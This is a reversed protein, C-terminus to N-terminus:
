LAWNLPYRPDQARGAGLVSASRSLGCRGKRLRRALPSVMHSGEDDHKRQHSCREQCAHRLTQLAGIAVVTQTVLMARVHSLQMSVLPEASRLGWGGVGIAIPDRVAEVLAGVRRGGGANVGRAARDRWGGATHVGHARPAPGDQPLHELIIRGLTKGIEGAPADLDPVRAARHDRPAYGVARGEVDLPVIVDDGADRRTRIGDALHQRGIGGPMLGLRRAPRGAPTAQEAQDCDHHNPAGRVQKPEPVKRLTVVAARTLCIWPGPTYRRPRTRTLEGEICVARRVWENLSDTIRPIVRSALSCPAMLRAWPNGFKGAGSTRFSAAARASRSSTFWYAMVQPAFRRRSASARFYASQYPIVTFGSVSIVTVQPAVSAIADASSAITSGPSSTM